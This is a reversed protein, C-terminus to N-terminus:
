QTVDTIAAIWRTVFGKEDRLAVGSAQVWVYTGDARLLRYEEPAYDNERLSANRAKIFAQWRNTIRDRDDPHMLVKFYDPWTSTDADPAYGLIERFRPSYWTAHTSGDWDVIGVQTARVVLALRRQESALQNQYRKLETIDTNTGVVGSVVGEGDRLVAKRVMIWQPNGDPGTRLTELETFGRRKEILQMDAAHHRDAEPTQFLERINKGIADERAIGVMRVWADNVTVYRGEKDKVSIANPNEDIVARTLAMQDRLKQEQLHRETIDISAVLLGVVSGEADTVVSRTQTFRRGGLEVDAMRPPAGPGAEFAERDLLMVEDAKQSPLRERVSSGITRDENGFWEEWQRNVFLHQGKADRLSIAVPVTDLVDSTYKAQNRLARKLQRIRM